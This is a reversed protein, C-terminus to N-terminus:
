LGSSSYPSGCPDCGVEDDDEAIEEPPRDPRDAAVLSGSVRSRCRGPRRSGRAPRARRRRRARCRLRPDGRRAGGRCRASRAPSGRCRPAPRGVRDCYRRSSTRSLQGQGRAVRDVEPALLERPFALALLPEKRRAGAASAGRRVPQAVTRHAGSDRTLCARPCRGASAPRPRPRAGPRTVGRLPDEPEVHIALSSRSGSTESRRSSRSPGSRASSERTKSSGSWLSSESRECSSTSSTPTASTSALRRWVPAASIRESDRGSSGAGSPGKRRRTASAQSSSTSAEHVSGSSTPGIAHAGGIPVVSVGEAELDRGRRTALAVVARQDSIGEVLVVARLSSTESM